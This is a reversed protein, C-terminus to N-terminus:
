PPGSSSSAQQIPVAHSHAAKPCLPPWTGHFGGPFASTGLLTSALLIAYVFAKDMNYDNVHLLNHLGRQDTFILRADAGMCATLLTLLAQWPDNLKGLLANSPHKNHKQELSLVEAFAKSCRVHQKAKAIVLDKTQCWTSCYKHNPTWLSPIVFMRNFHPSRRKDKINQLFVAKGLADL